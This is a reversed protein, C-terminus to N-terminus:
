ISHLGPSLGGKWRAGLGGEGAICHCVRSLPLQTTEVCDLGMRGLSEIHDTRICCPVLGVCMYASGWMAQPYFPPRPASATSPPPFM